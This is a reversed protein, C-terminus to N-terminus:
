SPIGGAALAQKITPIAARIRTDNSIVGNEIAVNLDERVLVRKDKLNINEMRLFTM